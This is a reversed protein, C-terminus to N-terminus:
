PSGRLNGFVRRARELTALLEGHRDAALRAQDARAKARAHEDGAQRQLRQVALAGRVRRTTPDLEAVVREAAARAIRARDAADLEGRGVLERHAALVDRVVGRVAELSPAALSARRVAAADAAPLEDVPGAGGGLLAALAASDAGGGAAPAPAAPADLLGGIASGIATGLGPALVTGAIGGLTEFLGELGDDELVDDLLDGRRALARAHLRAQESIRM